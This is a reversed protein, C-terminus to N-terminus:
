RRQERRLKAAYFARIDADADADGTLMAALEPPDSDVSIAQKAVV